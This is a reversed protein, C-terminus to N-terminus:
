WAADSYGSALQAARAGSDDEQRLCDALQTVVDHGGVRELMPASTYWARETVMEGGVSVYSSERYAVPLGLSQAASLVYDHWRSYSHHPLMSRLTYTAERKWRNM